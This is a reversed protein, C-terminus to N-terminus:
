FNNESNIWKSIMVEQMGSSPEKFSKCIQNQLWISQIAIKTTIKIRDHKPM